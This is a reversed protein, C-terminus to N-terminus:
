EHKKKRLSQKGGADKSLDAEERKGVTGEGL